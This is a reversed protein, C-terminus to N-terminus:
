GWGWSTAPIPATASSAPSSSPAATPPCFLTWLMGIDAKDLMGSALMDPMAFSSAKRTFYFVACGLYMTLLICAGTAIAPTSKPRTRCPRGPRPAKAFSLM